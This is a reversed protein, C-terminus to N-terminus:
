PMTARLRFGEWDGGRAAVWTMAEGIGSPGAYILFIPRRDERDIGAYVGAFWAAKVQGALHDRLRSEAMRIAVAEPHTADRMTPM